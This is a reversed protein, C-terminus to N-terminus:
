LLVFAFVTSVRVVRRHQCLGCLVQTQFANLCLIAAVPSM